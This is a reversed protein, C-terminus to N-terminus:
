FKYSLRVGYTLPAIYALEYNNFTYFESADSFAHKDTLNQVYATAQWNGKQPAYDLGLNILGYADQSQDPYNNAVFYVKSQYKFSIRPTVTGGSGITFPYEYEGSVSITPSLPPTNGALNLNISADWGASAIFEDYRAHLWNASLQLRGLKEDQFALSSEVGYIKSKGANVTISGSSTVGSVFQTV